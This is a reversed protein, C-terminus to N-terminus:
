RTWRPTEGDAVRGQGIVAPATGSDEGATLTRNETVRRRGPQPSEATAKPDDIDGCWDSAVPALADGNVSRRGERWGFAPDDFSNRGRGYGARQQIEGAAAIPASQLVRDLPRLPEVEQPEVLDVRREGPAGARPSGSAEALHEPYISLRDEAPRSRLPEEEIQDLLRAQRPWRHVCVHCSVLDVGVPLLLAKRNFDVAPAGMPRPVRELPVGNALLVQLEGSDIRDSAGGTADFSLGPLHAAPQALQELLTTALEADM